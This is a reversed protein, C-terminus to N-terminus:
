TYNTARRSNFRHSATIAQRQVRTKSRLRPTMKTQTKMKIKKLPKIKNVTKAAEMKQATVIYLFFNTLFENTEFFATPFDSFQLRLIARM